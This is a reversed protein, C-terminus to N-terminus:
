TNEDDLVMGKRQYKFLFLAIPDNSPLLRKGIFYDVLRNITYEIKDDFALEYIRKYHRNMM